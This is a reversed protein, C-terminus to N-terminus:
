GANQIPYMITGSPCYFGSSTYPGQKITIGTPCRYCQKDLGLNYGNECSSKIIASEDTPFVYTDPYSISFPFPNIFPERKVSSGIVCTFLLVFLGIIIIKKM